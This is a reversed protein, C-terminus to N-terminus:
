HHFDQNPKEALGNQASSFAATTKPMYDIDKETLLKIFSKSGALEGGLDTTVTCNNSKVNTRFQKFIHRLEAIPPKKTKTLIITIYRSARDIVLCYSRYGDISTILNGKKDKRSYDSGRVFGFDVHLHQGVEINDDNLKTARKKSVSKTPGIHTKSVQLQQM